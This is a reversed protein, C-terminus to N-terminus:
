CAAEKAHAELEAELQALDQERLLRLWKGLKPKGFGADRGAGFPM